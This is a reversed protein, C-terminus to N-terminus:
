LSIYELSSLLLSSLLPFYLPTQLVIGEYHSHVSSKKATNKYRTFDSHKNRTKRNAEQQLHIFSHLIFVQSLFIHHAPITKQSM